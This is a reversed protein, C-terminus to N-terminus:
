KSHTDSRSPGCILVFNRPDRTDASAPRAASSLVLRTALPHHKGCAKRFEPVTSLFDFLSHLANPPPEGKPVGQWDPEPM